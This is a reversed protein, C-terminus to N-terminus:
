EISLIENIASVINPSKEAGVMIKYLYGSDFFLGTKDRVKGILWNQNQGLELLRVKIKMGYDTINKVM